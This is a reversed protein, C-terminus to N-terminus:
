PIQLCIRFGYLKVYDYGYENSPSLSTRRASTAYSSAYEYDGGRLIRKSGSAPGKRDTEASFHNNLSEYWDLCWEDVNGRMDYLGWPNAYYSGVTTHESYGGKGDDRNSGTRAYLKYDPDSTLGARCAYEWQTETPLDFDLGTRTRMRGMFSGSDVTSSAPWRAGNSSGRIDTYLVSEVPRADGKCRSPNKGMVLSYQKQTVEFVGLYFPQSITAKFSYYRGSYDDKMTFSGSSVRKLVLRTTKYTTSWGGSPIESLYEVPYSTASSGNSLDIVLYMANSIDLAEVAAGTVTVRDSKWGDPLDAAADWVWNYTGPLLQEKTAAASGDAKRITNMTINTGGVMDKATFSTEYKVGSEGTITFHLDVLGNWPYRQKAQVTIAPDASFGTLSTLALVAAVLAVLGRPSGAPHTGRGARANALATQTPRRNWFDVRM